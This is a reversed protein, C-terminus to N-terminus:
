SNKGAPRMMKEAPYNRLTNEALTKSAIGTKIRVTQDKVKVTEEEEKEKATEVIEANRASSYDEEEKEAKERGEKVKRMMVSTVWSPNGASMMMKKV